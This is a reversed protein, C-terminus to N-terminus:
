PQSSFRAAFDAMFVTFLIRFMHHGTILVPNVELSLAVLSMETLGGPAFSVLLTQFSMETVHVLVLAFLSAIALMGWVSLVGLGLAVLLQRLTSLAFQSGLSAGIIAQSANLLIAPGQLDVVGSSQVAAALILPGILIGAPLRLLRGVGLGVIAVSITTIWDFWVSTRHTMTEGASSGVADGTVLLFLMPVTLIVLVIRVFHQVSLKEVDGGAKEGMTVAEILGGPLAAYRATVPDLGGVKCFVTYNFAQAIGVFLVMGLLTFVLSPAMSLLDSSFGAGIMTGVIAIFVSRLPQPFWLRKGTRAFTILSFTATVILSGLLYPIPLGMLVAVLAGILGVAILAFLEAIKRPKLSM